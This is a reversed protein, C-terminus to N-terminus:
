GKTGVETVFEYTIKDKTIKPEGVHSNLLEPHSQVYHAKVKEPTWAPNPDNLETTTGNKTFVFCRLLVKVEM